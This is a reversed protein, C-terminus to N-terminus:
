VGLPSQCPNGLRVVISLGNGAKNSGQRAAVYLTAADAPVQILAILPGQGIGLTNYIVYRTQETLAQPQELRYSSTGQPLAVCITGQTGSCLVSPQVQAGITSLVGSWRWCTRTSVPHLTQWACVKLSASVSGRQLIPRGILPGSARQM